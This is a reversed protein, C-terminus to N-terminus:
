NPNALAANLRPQALQLGLQRTLAVIPALRRQKKQAHNQAIDALRHALYPNLLRERLLVLYAEAADRKDLAAFVPVIEDRWLAELEPRLHPDEMAQAVTLDAPHADERWREALFTHGANLLFLKLREHHDLEGTLVIAPHTCPLVLGRRREVAWLAYPEAVAGVPHLAESVIRDVLSNAWVCHTRLWDVFTAPLMWQQALACVTACLTDGNREILECPFLSLPALPQRLWRGHLLVVLKAPFSRPVRSPEQLLSADDRPDLQYGRDATNSVVVQVQTAMLERLHHWDADAQLARQVARCTVTQDVPAGDRLGRIRVPYGAGGALAAVRAASAPNSTSQVVTIGGLAQGADLAESVFLDVHAQLFRSTGFQLIPATM